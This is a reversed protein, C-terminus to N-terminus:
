RDEDDLAIAVAEKLSVHGQVEDGAGVIAGIQEDERGAGVVCGEVERFRFVPVGDDVPELSSLWLRAGIGSRREM